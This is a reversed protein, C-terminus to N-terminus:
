NYFQDYIGMEYYLCKILKSTPPKASERMSPFRHKKNFM